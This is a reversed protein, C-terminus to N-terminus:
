IRTAVNYSLIKWEHGIKDKTIYNDIKIINRNIRLIVTDVRDSKSTPKNDVFFKMSCMDNLVRNSNM